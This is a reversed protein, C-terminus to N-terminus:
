NEGFMFTRHHYSVSFALGIAILFALLSSGGYSIYPLPIGTIPLLQISMGINQFVHFAVMCILGVMVYTSFKHNARTAITTLRYIFLFFALLVVCSGIFGYEEGIISFIFDTHAEPLYLEREGLGKGYMQGSGISRMARILQFGESSGYQQPNLWAYIRGLQYQKVGLYQDLLQPFKIALWIIGVGAVAISGFIPTIIKWSVGSILTMGAMIALFVLATGLDPQQMILVLPLATLGVIKGLLIFDDKITVSRVKEHHNSIVNALILITFVKMFESPQISGLGPLIFWSKQGKVVPAISAPAVVLALLVVLGAIYLPWSIKKYFDPEFYLMIGIIVGGVGFWVLQKLMFNENYQPSQQASYLAVCSITIFMCLIFCLKWDFREEFNM